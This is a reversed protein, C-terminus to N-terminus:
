CLKGGHMPERGKNMALKAVIAAGLRLKKAAARDMLRIITDAYEAEEATFEPIKDDPPNGHRLGELAESLESHSLAISMGAIANEAFRVLEPAYAEALAVLAERERWWGKDRATQHADLAVADFALAFRTLLDAGRPDAYDVEVGAKGALRKLAFGREVSRPPRLWVIIDPYWSAMEECARVIRGNHIRGDADLCILLALAGLTQKAPTKM